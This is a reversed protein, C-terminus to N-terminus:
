YMYLQGELTKSVYEDKNMAWDVAIKRGKFEKFNLDDVAERAANRSSYQIFAFGACSNPYRRDKCKPLQVDKVFGHTEFFRKL